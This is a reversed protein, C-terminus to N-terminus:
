SHGRHCSRTHPRANPTRAAQIPADIRAADVTAHRPHSRSARPPARHDGDFWWQPDHRRPLEAGAM